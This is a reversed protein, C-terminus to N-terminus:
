GVGENYSMNDYQDHKEITDKLIKVVDRCKEIHKMIPVIKNINEKKYYKMNLFNHANTDIQELDLPSGTHLYHVLNVDIVNNLEMFHNLKKRDYTYKKFDSKLNPLETNLSESHETPIVFEAGGWMQVYLLSLEDNVSHKHEDCQIPIIFCDESKFTKEFQKIQSKNEIIM